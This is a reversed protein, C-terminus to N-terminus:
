SAAPDQPHSPTFVFVVAALGAAVLAV